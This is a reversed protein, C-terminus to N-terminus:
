VRACASAGLGRLRACWTCVCACACVCAPLFNKSVEGLASLVSALHVIVDIRYELTVRALQDSNLIDLYLFTGPWDKRPRKIDSAIINEAGYKARLARCLSTGIQGTAGTVLVRTGSKAAADRHGTQLYGGGYSPLSNEDSFQRSALTTARLPASLARLQPARRGVATAGTLLRRLMM